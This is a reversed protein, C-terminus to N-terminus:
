KILNISGTKTFPETNFAKARIDYIYVGTPLSKGKYTGDWGQYIDNSQYIVEGWRNYISVEFEEIGMGIFHFADNKGDNNPTFANPAYIHLPPKIEQIITDYCGEIDKVILEVYHNGINPYTHSPDIATSTDVPSFNWLQYIINSFSTNTFDVDYDSLYEYTFDAKPFKVSITIEGDKYNNCVDIVTVNYTTEDYPRAYISDSTGLGHWDYIYGGAGGAVKIGIKLEEGRCITTDRTLELSLPHYVPVHVTLNITDSDMACTDIVVVQYVTTIEPYVIIDNGIYTNVGNFWTLLQANSNGGNITASLTVPNKPCESVIFSTDLKIDVDHFIPEYVTLTDVDSECQDSVSLWYETTNNSSVNISPTSEGTSWNYNLLGYSNTITPTLLVIENLCEPNKDSIAVQINSILSSVRISDKVIVGCSDQATLTYTTTDAPTVNVSLSHPLGNNWSFYTGVGGNIIANIDVNLGACLTTDLTTIVNTLPVYNPITILVSDRATGGCNGVVDIIYNTTTNPNILLSDGIGGPTWNYTYNGGGGSAEVYIWISDQPCYQTSDSSTVLTIPSPIIVTFVSSDNVTPNVGCTDSVSVYYTTTVLPSVWITDTTAGNSWLTSHIPGNVDVWLPLLDTDSCNKITDNTSITIPPFDAIYFTIISTDVINCITQILEIEVIELPETLGDSNATFSIIVTDIGPLFVVSDANLTYDSAVATGNVNFYYVSTGVTNSRVFTLDAAGCGEYLVSDGTTTNINSALTLTNSSFSGAELFVDSDLTGDQADAIAIKIHYVEGCQVSSIASLPTTFGNLEHTNNNPNDIYYQANMQPPAQGPDSYITSITIPLTTNPVIAVNAAGGPFGAPSAYSGTIGPGSIFFGFVDNYTSNIFATYEESAFVFNFQVTDGTPIFDFELVAMDHTSTINGSAPNTTVSQALNLLDPDGGGWNANTGYTMEINTSPNGGTLNTLVEGNSLVLGSNLPITSNTGNFEGIQSPHGYFTVNSVTIGAGVLVNQVYETPTLVGSTTTLQANTIAILSSFFILLLIRKM